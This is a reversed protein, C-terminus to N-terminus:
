LKIFKESERQFVHHKETEEEWLAMNDTLSSKKKQCVLFYFRSTLFTYVKDTDLLMHKYKSM